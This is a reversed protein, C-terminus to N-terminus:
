ITAFACLLGFSRVKITLLCEIDPTVEDNIYTCPAMKGKGNLKRWGFYNLQRQFSAYKSHRFYKKLVNAELKHPNHVEIRGANFLTHIPGISVHVFLSPSHMHVLHLVCSSNKIENELKYVFCADSTKGYNWEIADRNDDTLLKTLQYLFEPITNAAAQGDTASVQGDDDSPTKVPKSAAGSLGVSSSAYPDVSGFDDFDFHDLGGVMAENPHAAAAAAAAGVGSM